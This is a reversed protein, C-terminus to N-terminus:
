LAGQARAQEEQYRKSPKQPTIKFDSFRPIFPLFTVQPQYAMNKMQNKQQLSKPLHKLLIYRLVKEYWKQGFIIKASISSAIYQEKAFPFRQDRYDKLAATIDQTSLSELDYICNSLIVADQMANIAGQGSSPLLKHCADGMLVVRKHNWTQFIKDELFVRSIGDKPTAKILDGLTGGMPVKFDKIENIMAENAEAGWEANHIDDKTSSKLQLIVDWCIRNGSANVTSWSYNNGDGITQALCSTDKNLIPYDKPDMPDTTGVLCIYGKNVSKSDKVPLLNKEKLQKYLSQRVGSYTGDAGVLIDGSYSTGDSCTITANKDDQCIDIVKKSYHIKESDVHSLLIEYLKTRTFLQFDYGVSEKLFNVNLRTIPEMNSKYVDFSRTPLSAKMLEETLGLQELAPLINANLCIVSGLPRVKSSREFIEYSVGQRQLLIALLVGGLGAGVILVHPKKSTQSDSTSM